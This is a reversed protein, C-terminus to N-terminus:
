IQKFPANKLSSDKEVCQTFKALIGELEDRTLKDSLLQQKFKEDKVVLEVTGGEFEDYYHTWGGKVATVAGGHDDCYRFLQDAADDFGSLTDFSMCASFVEYSPCVMATSPTEKSHWARM